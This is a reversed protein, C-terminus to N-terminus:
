GGSASATTARGFTRNVLAWVRRYGYTARSNTVARIHALVTLDVTRHYRGDPRARAVYYATRRAIRLVQCLERIELRSDCQARHRARSQTRRGNKEGTLIRQIAERKFETSFVRRGDAKRRHEGM